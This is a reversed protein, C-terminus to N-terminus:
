IEFRLFIRYTFWRKHVNETGIKRHSIPYLTHFGHGLIGYTSLENEVAAQHACYDIGYALGSVIVPDYPALNEILQVTMKEGYHTCKRTGVISIYKRQVPPQQGSYFLVIPADACQKLRKPFTDDLYTLYSLKNQQINNLETEALLMGQKSLISSATKEGVGDLALLDKKSAKFVEQASGLKEILQKITVDGILPTFKLALLHLFELEQM